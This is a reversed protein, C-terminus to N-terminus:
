YFLGANGGTHIFLIGDDKFVGNRAYHLLAGAAKGTYVQDLLIGELSAFLKTANEGEKSPTAYGPGVFKDDILIKTEDLQATLMTATALALKRVRESQADVELSASIGQICTNYTGTCQGLVLGAQTGASSTPHIIHSFHVSNRYSFEMIEHFIQIYALTGITDSGGPHLEYTAKGKTKLSEVLHNYAESLADDGEAAYHLKTGCQNFIAQSAPNQEAESGTLVVHLDLGHASAAAAANRSLSTAKKTILTDANEKIADGILYDLKRTKNGGLAFGTLDDRLIYIDHGLQASLRPLKHIITPTQLLNARPYKKLLSPIIDSHKKM